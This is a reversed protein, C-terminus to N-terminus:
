SLLILPISGSFIIFLLYFVICSLEGKRRAENGLMLLGPLIVVTGCMILLIEIINM